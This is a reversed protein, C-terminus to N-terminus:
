SLEDLQRRVDATLPDDPSLARECRELADQLLDVAEGRRRRSSAYLQALRRMAKLTEPADPGHVHERTLVAARVEDPEGRFEATECAEILRRRVHRTDPHDTGLVRESRDLAEQLLDLAWIASTQTEGLACATRLATPHDPGVTRDLATLEKALAESQEDSLGLQSSANTLDDLARRTDPHYPGLVRVLHATTQKLLALAKVPLGVALYAEAVRQRLQLTATDDAPLVAEHAALVEEYIPLAEDTCGSEWYAEAEQYRHGRLEPHDALQSPPPEPRSKEAEEIEAEAQALLAASKKDFGYPNDTRVPFRRGVYRARSGTLSRSLTIIRFRGMPWVPIWLLCLYLGKVVSGCRPCPDAAGYFRTGFGNFTTTDPAAWAITEDTCSGCFPRVGHRHVGHRAGQSTPDM